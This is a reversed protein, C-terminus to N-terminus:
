QKEKATITVSFKVNQGPAIKLKGDKFEGASSTYAVSGDASGIFWVPEKVAGIEFTQELGLGKEPTGIRDTVAVGDVDFYFEPAGKVLKYGRFKVEPSKTSEGIQLPFIDPAVFFKSGLLKAPNGGRGDWVPTVDLFDGFWAYRVRCSEADFCYSVFSPLGVCISRTSSDPMFTRFIVPENGVSLAFANQGALGAPNPMGAGMSLFAWLGSITRDAKEHPTDSFFQPMSTGAQIRGPDLMWRTFWEGRMRDHMEAMDPGRTGLSKQGRFDHCKVCALGGEAAGVLKRGEQVQALSPAETTKEPSLDVGATAVLGHALGAVNNEGFHPMRLKMWPRIRKKNTLVATAWSERLKYGAGTLQPPAEEFKQTPVAGDLEHCSACRFTRVGRYFAYVPAESVDPHKQFNAIFAALNGRQEKTFNFRPAQGTPTEALCGRAADLKDFAPGALEHAPTAPQDPPQKPSLKYFVQWTATGNTCKLLLKNEGPQLKLTVTPKIDQMSHENQEEVVKQGNLWMTLTDDSGYSVVVETAQKAQIVRYMYAIAETRNNYLTTVLGDKLHAGSQWKVKKGAGSDYEANLDVGQEPPYATHNDGKREFPGVFSLPGQQVGFKELTWGMALAMADPDPNVSHCSMCGRSQVLKMGRAADGPVINTDFDANRFQVLYGAISSAEELTLGMAPMRGSPDVLLPDMLYKALRGATTKSGLGNMSIAAEGHCALCGVQEFLEKGKQMRAADPIFEQVALKPDTLLALYTAIDRREGEDLGLVPMVSEPRFHRPNELWKYIWRATTRSGIFSLDTGRQGGITKAGTQHCAICNHAEALDRGQEILTASAFEKPVDRHAFAKSPIPEPVFQDSAWVLQLRAPGDKREYEVRLPHEGAALTVPKGQVEKGDVLVRAEGTITYKGADFVKLVGDFQALFKPSLSPHVSEAPGLTFDPTPVIQVVSHNADHYTAVLGPTLASREAASAAFPLLLLPLALFFRM